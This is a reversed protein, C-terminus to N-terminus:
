QGAHQHSDDHAESRCQYQLLLEVGSYGFPQPGNFPSLRRIRTYFYKASFTNKSNILWDMNTILQHEHYIAPSSLFVNQFPRRYQDSHLITRQSAESQADGPVGSQYQIRRLGGADARRVCLRRTRRSDRSSERSLQSSRACGALSAHFPRGGTHPSLFRVPARPRWATSSVPKRITALSSYRTRRSPAASIAVSSTRGCFKSNVAAM